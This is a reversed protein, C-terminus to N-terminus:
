SVSRYPRTGTHMSMHRALTQKCPLKKECVGCVCQFLSKKQIGVLMNRIHNRKIFIKDATGM